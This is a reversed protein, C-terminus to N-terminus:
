ALIEKMRSRMMNVVACVIILRQITRPKMTLQLEGSRNLVPNQLDTELGMTIGRFFELDSGFAKSHIEGNFVDIIRLPITGSLIWAGVMWLETTRDIYSDKLYSRTRGSRDGDNLMPLELDVWPSSHFVVNGITVNVRRRLKSGSVRCYSLPPHSVEFVWTRRIRSRQM